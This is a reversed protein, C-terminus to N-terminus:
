SRTALKLKWKPPMGYKIIAILQDVTFKQDNNFDPPFHPLYDNMECMRTVYPRMLMDFPKRCYYQMYEHQTSLCDRPMILASLEGTVLDFNEKTEDRINNFVLGRKTCTSNFKSLADGKLFVRALTFLNEPKTWAIVSMFAIYCTIWEESNGSSYHRISIDHAKNADHNNGPYIKTKFFDGKQESKEPGKVLAIPPVLTFRGTSLNM